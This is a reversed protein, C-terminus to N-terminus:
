PFALQVAYRESEDTYMSELSWLSGSCYVELRNDKASSCVEHLTYMGHYLGYGEVLIVLFAVFM